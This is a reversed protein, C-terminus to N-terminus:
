PSLETVNAYEVHIIGAVREAGLEAVTAAGKEVMADHLELFRDGTSQQQAARRFYDQYISKVQDPNCDGLFVWGTNTWYRERLVDAIAAQWKSSGRVITHRPVYRQQRIREKVALHLIKDLAARLQDDSLQRLVRNSILHPDPEHNELAKDILETLFHTM